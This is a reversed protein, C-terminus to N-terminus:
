RKVPLYPGMGKLWDKVEPDDLLTKLAHRDFSHGQPSLLEEYHVVISGLKALLGIGPKLPDTEATSRDKIWADSKVFAPNRKM